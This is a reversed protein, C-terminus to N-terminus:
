KARRTPRFGAAELMAGADDNAAVLRLTPKRSGAARAARWAAASVRWGAGDREAGAVRGQRCWRAFTRANVGPPLSSSAYFVDAVGLAALKAEVRADVLAELAGLLSALAEPTGFTSTLPPKM